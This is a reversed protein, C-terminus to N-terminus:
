NGSIACIVAGIINMVFTGAIMLGMLATKLLGNGFGIVKNM